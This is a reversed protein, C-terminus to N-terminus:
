KKLLKELKYDRDDVKTLFSLKNQVIWVSNSWFNFKILYMYKNDSPQFIEEIVGTCKDDSGWGKLSLFIIERKLLSEVLTKDIIVTDGIKFKSGRLFYDIIVRLM